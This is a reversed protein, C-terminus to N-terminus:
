SERVRAVARGWGEFLEARRGSEMGPEWRADRRWSSAIEDLGGYLGAGLGALFAAGLATTEVVEPREVPLALMDSLFQM